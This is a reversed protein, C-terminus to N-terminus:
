SSLVSLANACVTFVAPTYGFVDGDIEVLVPRDADIEIASGRFYALGPYGIHRGNPIKPLLACLMIPKPRAPVLLMDLAGDDTRAGPALHVSAGGVKAANAAIAMWLPGSHRGHRWTVEMQPPKFEFLALIMSLYTGIAAGLYRKMWPRFKVLACYGATAYLFAHRSAPGDEDRCDIRILDYTKRAGVALTAIAQDLPYAGVHRAIDNGTGAPLIALAPQPRPGAMIGTIVEGITGDGGVAVILQYGDAAAARQRAQDKHTTLCIDGADIPTNCQELYRRWVRIGTGGNSIPNVIYLVRQM